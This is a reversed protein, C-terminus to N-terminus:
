VRRESSDVQGEEERRALRHDMSVSAVVGSPSFIQGFEVLLIPLVDFLVRAFICEYLGDVRPRREVAAAASQRKKARILWTQDVRVARRQWIVVLNPRCVHLNSRTTESATTKDVKSLCALTNVGDINMAVLRLYGEQVIQFSLSHDQEDKIKLLVDLQDTWLRELRSSHNIGRSRRETETSGSFRYVDLNKVLSSSSGSSSESSSSSSSPTTTSTARTFLGANMTTTTTTTGAFHPYRIQRQQNVHDIARKAVNSQKDTPATNHTTKISSSSPCVKKLKKRPFSFVCVFLSSFVM